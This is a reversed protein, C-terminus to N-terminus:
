EAVCHDQKETIPRVNSLFRSDFKLTAQLTLFVAAGFHQYGKVLICSNVTEITFGILHV